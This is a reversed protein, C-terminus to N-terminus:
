KMSMVDAFLPFHLPLPVEIKNPGIPASSSPLRCEEGEPASPPPFTSNYHVPKENVEVNNVFSSPQNDETRLFSEMATEPPLPPLPLFAPDSLFFDVPNMLQNSGIFDGGFPTASPEVTANEPPSISLFPAPSAAPQNNMSFSPCSGSQPLPEVTPGASLSDQKLINEDFCEESTSLLEAVGDGDNLFKLAHPDSGQAADLIPQQPTSLGDQPSLPIPEFRPLRVSEESKEDHHLFPILHAVGSSAEIGLKKEGVAVIVEKVCNSESNYVLLIIKHTGSETSEASKIVDDISMEGIVKIETHKESAHRFGVIYDRQEQLEGCAEAASHPLVRMVHACRFRAASLTTWYISCGLMNSGMSSRSPICTVERTQRAISNFVNFSIPGDVRSSIYEKFFTLRESETSCISYLNVENVAVIIDFYPILGANMAPSDPVVSTVQYGRLAEVKDRDDDGGEGSADQGM